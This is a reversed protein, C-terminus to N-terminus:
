EKCKGGAKTQTDLFFDACSIEPSVAEESCQSFEKSLSLVTRWSCVEICHLNEDSCLHVLLLLTLIYVYLHNRSHVDHFFM